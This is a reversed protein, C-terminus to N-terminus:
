SCEYGGDDFHCTPEAEGSPLETEQVPGADLWWDFFRETDLESTFAVAYIKSATDTWEIRHIGGIAYCLVRGQPRDALDSFVQDGRFQDPSCESDRRIDQQERAAHYIAEMASRREFLYYTVTVTETACRFTALPTEGGGPVRLPPPAPRVPAVDTAPGEDPGENFDCEGQLHPPIRSWLMEEATDTSGGTPTPGTPGGGSATRDVLAVTLAGGVVSVVLATLLVARRNGRRGEQANRPTTGSHERGGRSPLRSTEASSARTENALGAEIADALEAVDSRWRRDSLEFANRSSLPTLDPPLEEPDPMSAGQVLVPIVRVRRDLAAQCELRVFDTPLDLRRRGREDRAAAWQRGIVALFVSARGVADRILEPFDGGAPIADVDIFVADEGFREALSDYLRGAHGGADERRYSIFIIPGSQM